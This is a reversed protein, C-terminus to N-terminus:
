TDLRIVPARRTITVITQAGSRDCHNRVVRIVPETLASRAEPQAVGSSLLPGHCLRVLDPEVRVRELGVEERLPESDAVQHDHRTLRREVFAAVDDADAVEVRLGLLDEAVERPHELGPSGAEVSDHLDRDEEGVHPIESLITSSRCRHNM